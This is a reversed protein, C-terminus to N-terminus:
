DVWACLADLLMPPPWDSWACAIVADGARVPAFPGHPAVLSASPSDLLADGYENRYAVAESFGTALYRKDRSCKCEVVSSRSQGRANTATVTVDPRLRGAGLYHAGLTDRLGADLRAQDFYLDVRATDGRVFSAIAGRKSVVLTREHRWRGDTRLREEIARGLRLAVALEFRREVTLPVLAGEAVVRAVVDPRDDDIGSRLAGHLAAAERYAAGGVRECARVHLDGVRQAPVSRARSAALVMAIRERAARLAEDWREEEDSVSTRLLSDLLAHARRAVSAVLVDEPRDFVRERTALVLTARDGAMRRRLTASVDVRGRVVGNSLVRETECRGSLARAWPDLASAFRVLAARNAAITSTARLLSLADPRGVILSLFSEAHAVSMARLASSPLLWAPFVEELFPEWSM